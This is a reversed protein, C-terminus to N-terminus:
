ISMCKTRDPISHIATMKMKKTSMIYMQKLRENKKKATQQVVLILKIKKKESIIM